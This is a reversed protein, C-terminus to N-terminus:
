AGGRRNRGSHNGGHRKGDQDDDSAGKIEGVPQHFGGIVIKTTKRRQPIDRGEIQEDEFQRCPDASRSDDCECGQSENRKMDNMRYPDRMQAPDRGRGQNSPRQKRDQRNCKLQVRGPPNAGCQAKESHIEDGNTKKAAVM